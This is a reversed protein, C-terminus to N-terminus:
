PSAAAQATPPALWDFAPLNRAVAFAVLLLAVARLVGPGIESPARVWSPMWRTHAPLVLHLWRALLIAVAPLFLVNHQLVGIVDGHLLLWTARTAGCGPCYLGTTTHLPCGIAHDDFPDFALVAAAGAAVLAPGALLARRDVPRSTTPM